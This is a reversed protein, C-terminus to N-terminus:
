FNNELSGTFIHVSSMQRRATTFLAGCIGLFKKILQAVILKQLLVRNMCNAVFGM